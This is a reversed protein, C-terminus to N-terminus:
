EDWWFELWLPELALVQEVRPAFESWTMHAPVFSVLRLRGGFPRRENILERAATWTLHKAHVARDDEPLEFVSWTDSTTSQFFEVVLSARGNARGFSCSTGFEPNLKVPLSSRSGDSTALTAEVIKIGQLSSWALVPLFQDARARPDITVLPAIASVLPGEPFQPDVPRLRRKSIEVLRGIVARELEEPTGEAPHVVVGDLDLGGDAAVHLQADLKRESAPENRSCAAAASMALVLALKM